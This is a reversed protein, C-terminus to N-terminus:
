GKDDKANVSHVQNRTNNSRIATRIDFGQQRILPLAGVCSSETLLYTKSRLFHLSHSTQIVKSSSSIVRNLLVGILSCYCSRSIAELSSALLQKEVRM